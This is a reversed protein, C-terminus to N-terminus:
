PTPLAVPPTAAIYAVVPIVLEAQNEMDTKVFVQGNINGEPLSAGLTLEFRHSKGDAGSQDPLPTVVIGPHDTRVSVIQIAEKGSIVDFTRTRAADTGVRGFFLSSPQARLPQIATGTLTMVLSPTNPDNSKVTISKRQFGNRGRLDLRAHISAEGGPPIVNQSPKVATCGCSARVNLIELSLTGENRIPYDHEVFESNNREGFDYAMEDCVIKPGLPAATEQAQASFPLLSITLLAFLVITKM